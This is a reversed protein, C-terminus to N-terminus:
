GELHLVAMIMAIVFVLPPTPFVVVHTFGRLTRKIPRGRM